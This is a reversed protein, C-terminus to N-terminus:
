RKIYVFGTLVDVNKNNTEFVYYYTGTPLEDGQINLQSQSTGNWNNEYDVASYIINGWRNYVKLSNGPLAEIGGIVFFDNKGDGNPSFGNPIEVKPDCPDADIANDIGDNDCDNGYEESDPIGDGDSDDDRFDSIGDGDSDPISRGQVNDDWGDIDLDTFDDIISDNNNDVFGAEIVDKIGDNDSDLDLYDFEGEKDTDVIVDGEANDDWGNDNADTYNDVKGNHDNDNQGAEYVDPIGDQDSDLDHYDPLGEGDTELLPTGQSNDNWGNGNVDTINDVRGDRNADLGGNEVVDPIGDNDSDLDRYDPNGDKDFDIPKVGVLADQFGDNNADVFGDVKGDGNLDPQGSELIDSIGDNDSDLDIYDPIGDGDTNRPSFIPQNDDMGDGNLDTFQDIKGDGNADVGGSEILDTIGDNDSDLNQFNPKGGGSPNPLYTGGTNGDAVDFLGDNDLDINNDIRGDNNLDYQGGGAEVIDPIGDNDSDLDFYDPIGDGDSDCASLPSGCEVTDRIGDNDDDIDLYDAIGDGDHDPYVTIFTTDIVCNPPTATDCVTYIVTDLGIYNLPPTYNITGDPNVAVAGGKKSFPGSSVNLLDNEPDVNNALVIINTLTTNMATSTYENGQSPPKNIPIVTIFVTDNVCIAPLPTGDDCIRVVVLDNGIFNLNPTYVYTGNANIVITGNLPQVIPTTNVVLNGDIDYDGTDTLDGSATTNFQINHYENDVIPADNVPIVTIFITDNICIGPAPTGDDCIQVIVTDSGNFNLNPTYTFAGAANIVFAGNSPGSVPSVTVVLNGDVDSDNTIANGTISTDENTSISENNVIPADNVPTVTIFITDNVCIIPTPTGDDCVQVIVTDLGNFNVTPTYTFTGDTNILISGNNPGYLPTTNVVL